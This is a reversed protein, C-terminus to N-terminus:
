RDQTDWDIRGEADARAAALPLTVGGDTEVQEEQQEQQEQNVQEVQGAQESLQRDGAEGRCEPCRLQHSLDAEKTLRDCARCFQAQPHEETPEAEPGDYRTIPDACDACVYVRRGDSAFTWGSASGGCGACHTDIADESSLHM